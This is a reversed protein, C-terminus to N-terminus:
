TINFYGSPPENFILLGIPLSTPSSCAIYNFWEMAGNRNLLM